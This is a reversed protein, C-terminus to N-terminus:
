GDLQAVIQGRAAEPGFVLGAVAIVILLVPALSFLTYYALAAGMSPAFDDLWAWLASKWLSLFARLDLPRPGHGPPAVHHLHDRADMPSSSVRLDCGIETYNSRRM